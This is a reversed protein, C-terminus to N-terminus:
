ETLIESLWRHVVLGNSPASLRELYPKAHQACCLKMSMARTLREVSEADEGPPRAVRLCAQLCADEVVAFPECPHGGGGGTGRVHAEGLVLQALMRAHDPVTMAAFAGETVPGRAHALGDAVRLLRNVHMTDAVGTFDAGAVRAGALSTVARMRAWEFRVGSLDAMAFSGTLEAGKLTLASAGRRVAPLLTTWSAADVMTGELEAGGWLSTEGFDARHLRASRLRVCTVARDVPGSVVVDEGEAELPVEPRALWAQQMCEAAAWVMWVLWAGAAWMLHGMNAVRFDLRPAAWACIAMVIWGLLGAFRVLGHRVLQLMMGALWGVAALFWSFAALAVGATHMVGPHLMGRAMWAGPPTLVLLPLAYVAAWTAWRVHWAHRAGWGSAVAAADRGLGLREALSLRLLGGSGQVVALASRAAALHHGELLAQMVREAAPLQALPLDPLSVLRLSLRLDPECHTVGFISALVSALRDVSVMAPPRLPLREVLLKLTEGDEDRWRGSSRYGACLILQTVAAFWHVWRATHADPVARDLATSDYGRLALWAFASKRLAMAEGENDVLARLNLANLNWALLELVVDAVPPLGHLHGFATWCAWAEQLWGAGLELPTTQSLIAVNATDAPARSLAEHAAKTPGDCLLWETLQQSLALFTTGGDIQERFSVYSEVLRAVHGLSVRALPELVALKVLNPRPDLEALGLVIPVILCCLRPEALTATLRRIARLLTVDQRTLLALVHGVSALDAALGRGHDTQGLQSLRAQIQLRLIERPHESCLGDALTALLQRIGELLRGHAQDPAGVALALTEEWPGLAANQSVLAGLLRCLALRAEEVAGVRGATARALRAALRDQDDLTKFACGAAWAVWGLSGPQGLRTAAGAALEAILTWEDDTELMALMHELQRRCDLRDDRLPVKWLEHWYLQLAGWLGVGDWLVQARQQRHAVAAADQSANGKGTASQVAHFRDGVHLPASPTWLRSNVDAKWPRRARPAPWRQEAGRLGAVLTFRLVYERPLPVDFFVFASTTGGLVTCVAAVVGDRVALAAETTRVVQQLIADQIGNAIAERLVQIQEHHGNAERVCKLMSRLADLTAKQFPALQDRWEDKEAADLRQLGVDTINGNIYGSSTFAWLACRQLESELDGCTVGSRLAATFAGSADLAARVTCRALGQNIVHERVHKGLEGAVNQLTQTTTMASLGQTLSKGMNHLVTEAESKMQALRREAANSGDRDDRGDGGGVYKAMGLIYSVKPADKSSIATEAIGRIRRSFDSRLAPECQMLLHESVASSVRVTSRVALGVWFTTHNTVLAKVGAEIVEEAVEKALRSSAVSFGATMMNIALSGAKFSAYTRWCFTGTAAARVGDVLVDSAGDVVLGLGFSAAVGTAMLASGIGIQIVALAGLAALTWYPRPPQEKMTFLYVVGSAELQLLEPALANGLVQLRLATMQPKALTAPKLTRAVAGLHKRAVMEDGRMDYAITLEYRGAEAGFVTHVAEAWAIASSVPGEFVARVAMSAAALCDSSLLAAAGLPLRLRAVMKERVAHSVVDQVDQCLKKVHKAAHDEALPVKTKVATTDDNTIQWGMKKLKEQVAASQPEPMDLELGAQRDSVAAGSVEMLAAVADILSPVAMAPLELWASTLPTSALTRALRICQGPALGAVQLAAKANSTSPLQKLVTVADERLIRGMDSVNTLGAFSAKQIRRNRDLGAVTSALDFVAVTKRELENNETHRTTVTVERNAHAVAEANAEVAGIVKNLLTARHSLARALSDFERQALSGLSEHGIVTRLLTLQQMPGAKFEDCTQQLEERLGRRDEKVISTSTAETLQVTLCYSAIYQAAANVAVDQEKAALCAARAASFLNRVNMSPKLLAYTWSQTFELMANALSLRAHPDFWPEGEVSRRMEETAWFSEFAKAAAPSLGEAVAEATDATDMAAEHGPALSDFLLSAQAKAHHRRERLLASELGETAAGFLHDYHRLWFAWATDLDKMRAETRMAAVRARLSIGSENDKEVLNKRRRCYLRFAAQREKLYPENVSQFAHLRATEQTALFAQAERIAAAAATDEDGGSDTAPTDFGELEAQSLVFQWSGPDVSRAVRGVIQRRKRDVEPVYSLILHLGGQHKVKPSLKLDVGRSLLSTAVIIEMPRVEALLHGHMTDDRAVSRIAVGRWQPLEQRLLRCIEATSDDLGEPLPPAQGPSGMVYRLCAALRQVASIDPCSLLVSRQKAVETAAARVLAAIHAALPTLILQQGSRLGRAVIPAFTRLRSPQFRPVIACPALKYLAEMSRRVDDEGLTGSMGYLRTYASFYALHSVFNSTLSDPQLPVREKLQLQVHLGDSWHMHQQVVGNGRRDVPMVRTVNCTDKGLVYDVDRLMERHAVCASACWERLMFVAHTQLHQPLRFAENTPLVTQDAGRLVSDRAWPPAQQWKFNNEQALASLDLVRLVLFRAVEAISAAVFPRPDTVDPSGFFNEVTIQESALADDNGFWAEACTRYIPVSRCLIAAPHDIDDRGLRGVDLNLADRRRGVAQLSDYLKYLQAVHAAIMVQISELTEMAPQPEALLAVDSAGDLLASDAEDVIVSAFARKARTERRYFDDCLHDFEMAAASGYVVPPLSNDARLQYCSKPGTKYDPEHNDECSLGFLAYFPRMEGADREALLHSSTVIDVPECTLLTLLTAWAAAVITKGQGTHLQALVGRESAVAAYMLVALVQNARLGQTAGEFAPRQGDEGRTPARGARSKAEFFLTAARHLVAVAEEAFHECIADGWFLDSVDKAQVSHLRTRNAEMAKKAVVLAWRAIDAESFTQVSLKRSAPLQPRFQHGLMMQAKEAASCKSVLRGGSRLNQDELLAELRASPRRMGEDESELLQPPLNANSSLMEELLEKITFNHSACRSQEAYLALAEPVSGSDQLLRQLAHMSGQPPLEERYLVHLATRTESAGGHVRAENILDRLVGFQWGRGLLKLVISLDEQKILLEYTTDLSAHSGDMTAPAPPPSLPLRVEAILMVAELMVAMDVISTAGRMKECDLTELLVAAASSGSLGAPGPEDRQLSHVIIDTLRDFDSLTSTASHNSGAPLRAMARAAATLVRLLGPVATRSHLAHTANRQAGLAALDRSAVPMLQALPVQTVRALAAAMAAEGGRGAAVAVLTTTHELASYADAVTAVERSSAVLASLLLAADHPSQVDPLQLLLLALQLCPVRRGEDAECQSLTELAEALTQHGDTDDSDLVSYLLAHTLVAITMGDMTAPLEPPPRYPECLVETMLTARAADVRAGPSAEDWLREIHQQQQQQQEPHREWMGLWGERLSTAAAWPEGQIRAAVTLEAHAIVKWVNCDETPAVAAVAVEFSPPKALTGALAMSVETLLRCALVRLVPVNQAARTAIWACVAEALAVGNEVRALESAAGRDSAMTLGVQLLVDDLGGDAGAAELDLLNIAHVSGSDTALRFLLRERCALWRASTSAQGEPLPLLWAREVRAGSFLKCLDAIIVASQDGENACALPALGPLWALTPMAGNSAAQNYEYWALMTAHNLISTVEEPTVNTGVLAAARQSLIIHVTQIVSNDRENLAYDVVRCLATASLVNAVPIARGIASAMHAADDALLASEVLAALLSTGAAKLPVNANDLMAESLAGARELIENTMSASSALAEVCSLAVCVFPIRQNSALRELRAFIYGGTASLPSRCLVAVLARQVDPRAAYIGVAADPLLSLVVAAEALVAGSVAEFQVANGDPEPPSDRGPMAKELLASVHKATGQVEHNQEILRRLIALINGRQEDPANTLKHVHRSVLQEATHEPLAGQIRSVAGFLPLVLGDDDLSDEWVIALVDPPITQSKGVVNCLCDVAATAAAELCESTANAISALGVLAVMPLAEDRNVAANLQLIAATPNTAVFPYPRHTTTIAKADRLLQFGLRSSALISRYDDDVGIPAPPDGELALALIELANFSAAGHDDPGQPLRAQVDNRLVVICAEVIPAPVPPGVAERAYRLIMAARQREPSSIAAALAQVELACNLLQDRHTRYCACIVAMADEAGAALSMHQVDNALQALIKKRESNADAEENSAVLLHLHHAVRYLAARTKTDAKHPLLYRELLRTLDHRLPPDASEFSETLASGLEFTVHTLLSHLV